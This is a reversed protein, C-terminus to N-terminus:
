RTISQTLFGTDIESALLSTLTSFVQCDLQPESLPIDVMLCGIIHSRRELPLWLRQTDHQRTIHPQNYKTFEIIHDFPFHNNDPIECPPSQYSIGQNNMELLVKWTSQSAVIIQCYQANFSECFNRCTLECITRLSHAKGWQELVRRYFISLQQNSAV